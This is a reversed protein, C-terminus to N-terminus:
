PKERPPRGIPRIQSTRLPGLSGGLVERLQLRARHIRNRVADPTLECANAIEDYTLGSMERMLFVDRNLEPLTSLAQSLATTTEQSAGKARDITGLAEEPRRNRQRRHDLAVNRAIRFLWGALQNEPAVPIAVRSVRLFVEQTLDKALETEGSARGLYRRLRDQYLAFLTEVDAV